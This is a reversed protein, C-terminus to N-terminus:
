KCYIKPNNWDRIIFWFWSPFDMQITKITGSTATKLFIDYTARENIINSAPVVSVSTLGAAEAEEIIGNYSPDPSMALVLAVIVQTLTIKIIKAKNRPALLINKISNM